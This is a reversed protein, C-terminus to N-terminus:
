SPRLDPLEFISVQSDPIYSQTPPPQASPPGQSFLPEEKELSNVEQSKVDENTEVIPDVYLDTMPKGARRKLGQNHAPM